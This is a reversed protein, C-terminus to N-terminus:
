RKKVVFLKRFHFFLMSFKLINMGKEYLLRSAGSFELTLLCIEFGIYMSRFLNLNERMVSNVCFSIKFAM